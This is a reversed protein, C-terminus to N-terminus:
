DGGVAVDAVAPILCRGKRQDDLYSRLETIGNGLMFCLLFLIPHFISMNAFWGAITM